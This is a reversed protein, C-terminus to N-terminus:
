LSAAFDVAAQYLQDFGAKIMGIEISSYLYTPPQGIPYRKTSVLGPYLYWGHAPNQSDLGSRGHAIDNRRSAWGRYAKLLEKFDRELQPDPKTHFYAEGAVQLMDARVNAATVVGYARVAPAKELDAMEANVLIAFIEGLQEETSEWASLAAGVATHIAEETTDGKEPTPPIDWPQSM